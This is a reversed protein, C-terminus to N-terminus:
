FGREFPEEDREVGNKDRDDEVDARAMIADDMKGLTFTEDVSLRTGKGLRANRVIRQYPSLTKKVGM